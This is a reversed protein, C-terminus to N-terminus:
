VTQGRTKSNETHYLKFKVNKSFKCVFIKDDAERYGDKSSLMVVTGLDVVAALLGSNIHTFNHGQVYKQAHVSTRNFIEICAGLNYFKKRALSLQADFKERKYM